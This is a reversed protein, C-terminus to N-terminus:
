GHGRGLISPEFLKGNEHSPMDREFDSRPCKVSPLKGRCFAILESAWPRRTCLDRKTATCFAQSIKDEAERGADRRNRQVNRQKVRSLYVTHIPPSEGQLIGFLVRRVPTFEKPIVFLAGDSRGHRRDEREWTGAFGQAHKGSALRSPFITTTM